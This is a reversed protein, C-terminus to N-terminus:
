RRGPLLSRLAIAARYARSSTTEELRTGLEHVKDGATRLEAEKTRLEAARKELLASLEVRSRELEEVRSLEHALERERDRIVGELRSKQVRAEPTHRVVSDLMAPDGVTSDLGAIAEQLEATSAEHNPWTAATAQAGESLRGLLDRDDDLRDLVRITGPTDDFRALLGNEGDRLYEEHGGFPTVVCPVAAHFAEVPVLGLGEFRSLKLVVDAERYLAAMGEPGIAGVVRDAVVGGINSPDQAVLTVHPRRRMGEAAALGERVGKFWLSPQGDVLIRLPGNAPERPAGGFAQKDIGPRVVTCRASPRVAGVMRAVWASVAIVDFPASLAATAALRDALDAARYHLPDFGQALVGYRQASIRHLYPITTWWTALAADWDADQAAALAEVDCVPVVVAEAGHAARLREAHGSIVSIGGSPSLNPVLFCVRM